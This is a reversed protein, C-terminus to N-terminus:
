FKWSAIKNDDYSFLKNEGGPDWTDIFTNIIMNNHDCLIRNKLSQLFSYKIMICNIEVDINYFKSMKFKYITYNCLTIILQIVFTEKKKSDLNAYVFNEETINLSQIKLANILQIMMVRMEFGLRCYLFLHKPTDICDDCLICKQNGQYLFDDLTLIYRKFFLRGHYFKYLFERLYPDAFRNSKLNAFFGDYKMEPFRIMASPIQNNQSLLDRYIKKTTIKDSEITRNILHYDRFDRICQRYFVPIEDLDTVHPYSNNWEEGSIDHLASSFWYRLINKWTKENHDFYKFVLMIRFAKMKLKYNILNLGGDEQDLFLTEIKILSRKPKGHDNECFGWLFGLTYKKLEEMINVKSNNNRTCDYNPLLLVTAKHWLKSFGISNLISAKGFLSTKRSIHQM